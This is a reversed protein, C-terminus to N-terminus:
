LYAQIGARKRELMEDMVMACIVIVAEDAERFEIAEERDVECGAKCPKGLPTGEQGSLSGDFFMWSHAFAADPKELSYANETHAADKRCMSFSSLQQGAGNRVGLVDVAIYFYQLLRCDNCVIAEVVTVTDAFATINIDCLSDFFSSGVEFVIM